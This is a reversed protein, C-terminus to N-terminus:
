DQRQRHYENAQAIAQRMAEDMDESYGDGVPRGGHDPTVAHFHWRGDDQHRGGDLYYDDPLQDNMQQTWDADHTLDLRPPQQSEDVARVTFGETGHWYRDGVSPLEFMHWTTDSLPMEHDAAGWRYVTVEM